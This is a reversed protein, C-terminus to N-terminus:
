ILSSACIIAQFKSSKPPFKFEKGNFIFECTSGDRVSVAPYIDNSPRIRTVCYSVMKGNVSFSLMPLDTQDWYVGVVDGEQLPTDSLSWSPSNPDFESDLTTDLEVATKKMVKKVGIALGEPNKGVIVEWMAVDCELCCSGIVTGSGEVKYCCGPSLDTLVINTGRQGGKCCVADNTTSILEVNDEQSQSSCCCGMPLLETGLNFQVFNYVGKAM